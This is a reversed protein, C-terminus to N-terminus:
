NVKYSTNAAMTSGEAFTAELTVNVTTGKEFTVPIEFNLSTTSKPMLNQELPISKEYTSITCKANIMPINGTNQITASYTTSNSTANMTQGNIIFSGIYKKPTISESYVQYQGDDFTFTLKTDYTPSNTIVLNNLTLVVDQTQGPPVEVEIYKFNAGNIKSGIVTIPSNYTNTVTLKINSSKWDFSPEIKISSIEMKNATQPLTFLDPFLFLVTSFVVLAIAVIVAILVAVRKSIKAL